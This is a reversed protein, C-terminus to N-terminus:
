KRHILDLRGENTKGTRQMLTRYVADVVPLRSGQVIRDSLITDLQQGFIDEAQGGHFLDSKFPNDRLQALLPQVLATAVLEEATQRALEPGKASTREAVAGSAALVSSFPPDVGTQMPKVSAQRGRTPTAHTIQLM